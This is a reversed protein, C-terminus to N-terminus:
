EFVGQTVLEVFLEDSIGLINTCIYETDEGLRPGPKNLEAPTKSLRFPPAEYSHKGIETHNLEWFYHRHALQPDNHIDEGNEVLGAPVGAGQLKYM